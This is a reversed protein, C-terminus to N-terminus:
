VSNVRFPFLTQINFYSNPSIVIVLDCYMCSILLHNCLSIIKQNLVRMKRRMKVIGKM